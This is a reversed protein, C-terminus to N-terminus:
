SQKLKTKSIWRLIQETLIFNVIGLTRCGVKEISLGISQPLVIQGAEFKPATAPSNNLIKILKPYLFTTKPRTKIKTNNKNKNKYKNKNKLNTRTKTKTNNKNKNKNKKNKPKIKQKQKLDIERDVGQHFQPLTIRLM